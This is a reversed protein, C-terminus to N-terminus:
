ARQTRAQHNNFKHAGLAKREITQFYNDASLSSRRTSAAKSEIAHLILSRRTDQAHLAVLV